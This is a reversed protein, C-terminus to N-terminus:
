EDKVRTYKQFSDAARDLFEDPGTFDAVIEFPNTLGAAFREAKESKPTVEFGTPSFKLTSGSVVYTGSIVTHVGGLDTQQQWTLDPRLTLFYGYHHHEIGGDRGVETCSCGEWTGAVPYALKKRCGPLGLAGLVVMLVAVRRTM